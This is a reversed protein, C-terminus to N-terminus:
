RLAEVGINLKVLVELAAFAGGGFILLPRVWGPREPDVAVVCWVIAISIPVAEAGTIACVAYTLLAAGLLGFSRRAAWLLSTALVVRVLATYIVGLTATWEGAVSPEELFGLPGYTWIFATGHDFGLNAALNVGNVASPDLGSAVGLPLLEWSALAILCGYLPLM